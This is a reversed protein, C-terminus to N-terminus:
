PARADNSQLLTRSIRPRREHRPDVPQLGPIRRCRPAPCVRCIFTLGPFTSGQAHKSNDMLFRTEKDGGWWGALRPRYPSEKNEMDVKGHKEHVFLAAMAGPGSNMYKYTCWAAFDVDWDHLKLEVNGAAHACDWGILLGKSHAHATIKPIDFYQGSYYQIGPLLVLATSDAHEDIVKLIKETPLLPNAEDDPEILVMADKPDFGRLEIQSQVAFKGVTLM